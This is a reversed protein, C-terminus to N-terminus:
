KRMENKYVQIPGYIMFGICGCCDIFSQLIAAIRAYRGEFRGASRSSSKLLIAATYIPTMFIEILMAIELEIIKNLIKIFKEM